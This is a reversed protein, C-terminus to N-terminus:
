RTNNAGIERMPVLVCCISAGVFCLMGALIMLGSIKTIKKIQPDKWFRKSAKEACKFVNGSVCTPKISDLFSHRAYIAFILMAVLYAFIGATLLVGVFVDRHETLVEVICKM